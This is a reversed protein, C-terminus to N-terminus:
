GARTSDPSCAYRTSTGVGVYIPNGSGDKAQHWTGGLDDSPVLTVPDETAAPRVTALVVLTSGAAAPMSNNTISVTGAGYPPTADPHQWVRTFNWAM